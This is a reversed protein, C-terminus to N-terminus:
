SVTKLFIKKQHSQNHCIIWRWRERADEEAVSVKQTDGKVANMLRRKTRGRKRRVALEMNLM